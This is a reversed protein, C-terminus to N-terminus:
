VVFKLDNQGFIFAHCRNKQIKIQILILFIVTMGKNKSLIVQFKKLLITSGYHLFIIFYGNDFKAELYPSIVILTAFYHFLKKLEVKQWWPPLPVM